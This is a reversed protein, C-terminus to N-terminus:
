RKALRGGGVDRIDTELMVAALYFLGCQNGNGHDGGHILVNYSADIGFGDGYTADDYAAVVYRPIFVSKMDYGTGEKDQMAAVYGSGSPMTIDIQVYGTGQDNLMTLNSGNNKFGDISTWTNGWLDFIGRWELTSAGTNLLSGSLVNGQGIEGQVDTTGTEILILFQIAGMEYINFLHFGDTDPDTNWDECSSKMQQYSRQVWPVQNLESGARGSGADHAEYAGVYFQEIETGNDMFAPHLKFGDVQKDSIWWCKNGAQDSGAQANDVKYYFKPIKVMKQNKVTADSVNTIGSWIPHNDFFAADTTVNNGDRDVRQWSGFSTGQNVLAIGIISAFTTSTTFRTEASWESWDLNVGKHQVRFYYDNEGDELIAPPVVYTTLDSTVENTDHLPSTYNGTATRIQWRSSQHFETCQVFDAPHNNPNTEVDAVKVYLRAEPQGDNIGWAWQGTELTGLTGEVMLINNEYVSEPKAPIDTKNYYYENVAGSAASLTWDGSTGTLSIKYGSVAFASSVLTPQEPVDLANAVPAINVPTSVYAFSDATQFSTEDSWDSWAGETDKVCMRWYYTTQGSVLKGPPVSHARGGPVVEQSDYAPSTYDGQVTTIQVRLAEQATNVVSEYKEISLTPTEKIGVAAIGPVANVPKEPPHHTGKLGTDAHVGVMHYLVVQISTTGAVAELKLNMNDRASLRYEVEIVGTQGEVNRRWEWHAEKWTTNADDQYYLKLDTDNNERRIILAKDIDDSGLNIPGCFYLDGDLATANGNEITFSCRKLRAGSFAYTLDATARFRTGTLVEAVVVSEKNTGDFIVYEQGVVLDTTDNVDVSEDGVVTQSVILEIDDLLTWNPTWLETAFRLNRYLWDLKVAESVAIASDLELAGTRADLSTVSSVIDSVKAALSPEGDRANELDTEVATQRSDLDQFNDDIESYRNNWLDPVAGPNTDPIPTINNKPLTM